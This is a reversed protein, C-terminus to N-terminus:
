PLFSKIWELVKKFIGGLKEGSVLHRLSKESTFYAGYLVLGVSAAYVPSGIEDILGTVGKPYGIRLPLGLVRKAAAVAEATM